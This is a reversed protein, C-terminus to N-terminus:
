KPPSNLQTILNNIVTQYRSKSIKGIIGPFDKTPLTALFGTRIISPVQLGSDAFDEDDLNILSDLGHVEHRIKSSIGCILWDDFPPFSSLLLVPRLKFQRNSQQLEALAIDGVKM